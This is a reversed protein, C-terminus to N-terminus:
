DGNNTKRKKFIIDWLLIGIIIWLTSCIAEGLSEKVLFVGLLVSCTFGILVVAVSWIALRLNKNDM